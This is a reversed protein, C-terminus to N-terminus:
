YHRNCDVIFILTTYKVITFGVSDTTSFVTMSWSNTMFLEIFLFDKFNDNYLM